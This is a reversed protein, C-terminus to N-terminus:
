GAASPTIQNNAREHRMGCPEALRDQNALFTICDSSLYSPITTIQVARNAFNGCTMSLRVVRPISTRRFHNPPHQISARMRLFGHEKNILLSPLRRRGGSERDNGGGRCKLRM